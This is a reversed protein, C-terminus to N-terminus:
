ALITKTQTKHYNPRHFCWMIKSKCKTCNSVLSLTHQLNTLRHWCTDTSTIHVTLTYNQVNQPIAWRMMVGYRGFCMFSNRTRSPGFAPSQRDPRALNSHVMSTYHRYMSSAYSRVCLFHLIGSPIVVSINVSKSGTDAFSHRQDVFHLGLPVIQGLTGLLM